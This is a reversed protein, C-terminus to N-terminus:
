ALGCAAEMHAALRCMLGCGDGEPSRGYTGELCGTAPELGALRALDCAWVGPEFIASLGDTATKQLLLDSSPQDLLEQLRTLSDRGAPRHARLVL